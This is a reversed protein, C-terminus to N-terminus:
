LYRSKLQEYLCNHVYKENKDQGADRWMENWLHIAYSSDDFLPGADPELVKNWEWFGLPCFIKYAKKYEHLLFKEVAEVM